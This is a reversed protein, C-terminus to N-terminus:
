EPVPQGNVVVYNRGDKGKLRTGDPYPANSQPAVVAPAVVAEGLLASELGGTVPEPSIGSEAMENRVWADVYEPTQGEAIKENAQAMIWDIKTQADMPGSTGPKWGGAASQTSYLGAHAQRQSALADDARMKAAGVETPGMSMGGERFVNGLLTDGQVKALDQPRDALGMLAANAGTFDGAGARSAAQDHFGIEQQDSQYGSLQEPNYGAGFATSLLNAQEPAVGTATLADRFQERKMAEDRKIKATALLSAVRAGSELTENYVDRSQAGGGALAAGLDAWGNAM